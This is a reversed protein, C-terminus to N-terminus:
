KQKAQQYYKEAQPGLLKKLSAAALMEGFVPDNYPTPYDSLDIAGDQWALWASYGMKDIQQDPPLSNFWDVGTPVNLPVGKIKAVSTCRGRHHDNVMQNLPLKTGHKVVCSICVRNDLTAVWVHYELIDANELYSAVTARRYATLYLTRLLSEAQAFPMGGVLTLLDDVM